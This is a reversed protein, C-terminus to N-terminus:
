RATEVVIAGGMHGTGYRTTADRSNVFRIQRIDLAAIQHLQDLEGMRVGDLYVVPYAPQGDSSAAGRTILWRPRLRQVADYATRVNAQQMEEPSITDASRRPGSEGSSVCATLLTAVALMALRRM